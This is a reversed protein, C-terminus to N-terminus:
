NMCASAVDTVDDVDFSLSVLKLLILVEGVISPGDFGGFARADVRVRASKVASFDGAKRLTECM